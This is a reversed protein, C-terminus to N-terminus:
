VCGGLGSGFALILLLGGLLSASGAALSDSLPSTHTMFLPMVEGSPRHIHGVGAAGAPRAIGGHAM